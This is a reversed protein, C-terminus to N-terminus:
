AVDRKLINTSPSSVTFRRADHPLTISAHRIFSSTCAFRSRPRNKATLGAPIHQYSYALAPVPRTTREPSSLTLHAAHPLVRKRSPRADPLIITDRLSRAAQICSVHDNPPCRTSGHSPNYIPMADIRPLARTTPHYSPASSPIRRAAANSRASPVNQMITHAHTRWVRHSHLASLLPQNRPRSFFSHLARAANPRSANREYLTYHVCKSCEGWREQATPPCEENAFKRPSM